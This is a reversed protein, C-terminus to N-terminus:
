NKVWNIFRIYLSTGLMPVPQSVSGTSTEPEQGLQSISESSPKPHSGSRSPNSMIHAFIGSWSLSM